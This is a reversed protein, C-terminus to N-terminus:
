DFGDVIVSCDDVDAALRGGGVALNGFFTGGLVQGTFACRAGKVRVYLMGKGESSESSSSSNHRM